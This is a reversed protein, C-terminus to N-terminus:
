TQPCLCALLGIVCRHLGWSGPDHIFTLKATTSMHQTDTQPRVNHQRARPHSHALGGAVSSSHGTEMLARSSPVEAFGDEESDEDAFVPFGNHTKTRLVELIRDLSEM